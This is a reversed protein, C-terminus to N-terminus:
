SLYLVHSNHVHSSHPEGPPAPRLARRPGPRRASPPPWSRSPSRNRYGRRYSARTLAADPRPLTGAYHRALIPDTFRYAGDDVTLFKQDHAARLTDGLDTLARRRHRDLFVYAWRPAALTGALMALLLATALAASTGVLATAESTDHELTFPLCTLSVAIMPLSLLSEMTMGTGHRRPFWRPCRDPSHRRPNADTFAARGIFAVAYVGFVPSLVVTGPGGTYHAILCCLLCPLAPLSARSAVARLVSPPPESYIVASPPRTVVPHVTVAILAAAVVAYPVLRVHLGGDYEGTSSISEEALTVWTYFFALVAILVTLYPRKSPQWGVGGLTRSGDPRPPQRLFLALSAQFREATFPPSYGVACARRAVAPLYGSEIIQREVAHRPKGLLDAPDARGDSFAQRAACAMSPTSLVEWLEPADDSTLVPEWKGRVLAAAASRNTRPLWAELDEPELPCMMIGSSRALPTDTSEVLTRFPDTESILVVGSLRSDIEELARLLYRPDVADFDDLLPLIEGAELLVSLREATFRERSVCPVASAMWELLSGYRPDWDALSMLIPVATGNQLSRGLQVALETKGSGRPGLIVLRQSPLLTFLAGLDGFRGRLDVPPPGDMLDVPAPLFRIPLPGVGDRTGADSRLNWLPLSSALTHQAAARLAAPAGKGAEGPAGPATGPEQLGEGAVTDQVQDPRHHARHARSAEAYRSRWLDVSTEPDCAKAWDEVLRWRPLTTGTTASQLMAKSWHTVGALQQLTLGTEHRVARMRTALEALEPVTEDVPKEPRGRSM